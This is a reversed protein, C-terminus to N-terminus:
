REEDLLMMGLRRFRIDDGASEIIRGYEEWAQDFRGTFYYLLALNHRAEHFEPDLKIAYKFAREAKDVRKEDEILEPPNTYLVGINYHTLPNEYDYLLSLKLLSETLDPYGKLYNLTGAFETLKSALQKKDEVSEMAKLAEEFRLGKLLGVVDDSNM